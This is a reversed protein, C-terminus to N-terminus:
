GRDRMMESPGLLVRVAVSFAWGAMMAVLTMTSRTSSCSNPKWVESRTSTQKPCESPSNAAKTLLSCRCYASASFITLRRASTMARSLLSADFSLLPASYPITASTHSGFWRGDSTSVICSKRAWSASPVLSSEDLLLGISCTDIPFILLLLWTTSDPFISRILIRSTCSLCNPPCSGLATLSLVSLGNWEGKIASATVAIRSISALVSTLNGPGNGHTLLTEALGNSDSASRFSKNDLSHTSVTLHHSLMLNKCWSHPTLLHTPNPGPLTPRFRTPLSTPMSPLSAPFPAPTQAIVCGLSTSSHRLPNSFVSATSWSHSFPFPDVRLNVRVAPYSLFAWSYYAFRIEISKEYPIKKGTLVSWLWSAAIRMIIFSLSSMFDFAHTAFYM